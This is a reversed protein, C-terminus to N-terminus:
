SRGKPSSEGKRRTRQARRPFDAEAVRDQEEYVDEVSIRHISIMMALGDDNSIISAPQPNHLLDDNHVEVIIYIEVRTKM